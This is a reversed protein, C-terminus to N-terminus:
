NTNMKGAVYANGTADVAIAQAFDFKGNGPFGSGGVTVTYDLAAGSPNVKWVNRGGAVYAAGAADIAIGRIDAGPLYSAYVFGSGANNLKAVFGASPSPPTAFVSGPTAPFNTASPNGAVYAHGSADVAVAIAETSSPASTGTLYTSYLLGTGAANFKAVFGM